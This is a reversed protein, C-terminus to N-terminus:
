LCPIPLQRDSFWVHFCFSFFYKKSGALVSQSTLMTVVVSVSCVLWNFRFTTLVM